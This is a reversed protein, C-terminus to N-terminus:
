AGREWKIYVLLSRNQETYCLSKDHTFNVEVPKWDGDAEADNWM